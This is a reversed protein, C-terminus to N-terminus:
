LLDLQQRVPAFDGPTLHIIAAGTAESILRAALSRHCRTPDGPCVCCLAVPNTELMAAVIKVGQVADHLRIAGGRFNENGFAEVHVYRQGFVAQLNKQRWQPDRSRPSFRVDILLSDERELWERLPLVASGSYGLTFIPRM